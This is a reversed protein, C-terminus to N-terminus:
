RTQEHKLAFYDRTLKVVLPALILLGILNPVAMVTIVADVFKWVLDKGWVAGLFVFGVYMLRYPMVTHLWKSWERSSAM